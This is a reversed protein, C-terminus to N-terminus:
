RGIIKEDKLITSEFVTDHDVDPHNCYIEFFIRKYEYNDPAYTIAEKQHIYSLSIMGEIYNFFTLSIFAAFNSLEAVFNQMKDKCYNIMLVLVIYSRIDEEQAIKHIAVLAEEVDNVLLEIKDVECKKIIEIYKM